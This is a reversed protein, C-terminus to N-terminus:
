YYDTHLQSYRPKNCTNMGTPQKTAVQSLTSGVRPIIDKRTDQFPTHEM